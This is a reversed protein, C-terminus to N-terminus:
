AAITQRNAPETEKPTSTQAHIKKGLCVPCTSNDKLESKDHFIRCNCDSCVLLGHTKGKEVAQTLQYAHDFDIFLRGSAFSAFRTKYDSYAHMLAAASNLGLSKGHMYIGVLVSIHLRHTRTKVYGDLTKLTRGPAPSKGTVDKIIEKVKRESLDTLAIITHTRAGLEALKM